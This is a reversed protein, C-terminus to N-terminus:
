RGFWRVLDAAIPADDYRGARAAAAVDLGRQVVALLGEGLVAHQVRQHVHRQARDVRSVPLQSVQV